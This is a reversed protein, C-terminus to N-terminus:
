LAVHKFFLFFTIRFFLVVYVALLEELQATRATWSAVRSRVERVLFSVQQTAVFRDVLDAVPVAVSLDAGMFRQTAADRHLRLTVTESRCEVDLTLIPGGATSTVRVGGLSSMIKNMDTMHQVAHQKPAVTTSSGLISAQAELQARELDVRAHAVLPELSALQQHM